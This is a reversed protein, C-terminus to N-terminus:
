IALSRGQKESSIDKVLHYARKINYKNLCAEIEECETGIQDEKAKKIAKRIRKNGERYQKANQKKQKM